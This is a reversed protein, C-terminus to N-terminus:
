SIFIHARNSFLSGSLYTGEPIVVVGGGNSAALDIVAQLKETEIKTSDNVVGHDTVVDQKGLGKLEPQRADNFWAPVASGDPFQKFEAQATFGAAM